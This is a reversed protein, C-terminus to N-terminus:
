EVDFQHKSMILDKEREAFIVIGGNRKKYFFDNENRTCQLIKYTNRKSINFERMVEDIKGKFLEEKKRNMVIYTREFRDVKSVSIVGYLQRIPTDLIYGMKSYVENKDKAIVYYEKDQYKVMFANKNENTKRNM